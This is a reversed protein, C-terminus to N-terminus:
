SRKKRFGDITHKDLLEQTENYDTNMSDSVLRKQWGRRSALDLHIHSAYVGIGTFGARSAAVITDDINKTDVAIDIAYGSNHTNMRAGGKTSQDKKDKRITYGKTVVYSEGTQEVVRLLKYWVKPSVEKWGVGIPSDPSQLALVDPGWSISSGLGADSISAMTSLENESANPSRWYDSERQSPPTRGFFKDLSDQKERREKESIRIAGYKVASQTNQASMSKLAKSETSIANATKSLKLAPAMLVSQLNQAMTCLRFILNAVNEPTLREFSSALKAVLKEMDNIIKQVSADAMYDDINRILKAVQSFIATAASEMGRLSILIAGLAALAVNKVQGVVEEIVKKLIDMLTQLIGRQKVSEALKKANKELLNTIEGVKDVVDKGADIVKFAKSLKALVDNYVGCLEGSLKNGINNAFHFNMDGLLKQLAVSMLSPIIKKEGSLFQRIEELRGSAGQFDALLRDATSIGPGVGAVSPTSVSVVNGNADIVTSAGSGTNITPATGTGGVGTGSTGTGTGDSGTGTEGDSISGTGLRSRQTSDSANGAGGRIPSDIGTGRGRLADIVGLGKSTDFDDVSKNTTGSSSADTIAKLKDDDIGTGSTNTTSSNPLNSNFEVLEDKLEDMNTNNAVAFEALDTFTIGDQSDIKEQLSSYDDGDGALDTFTLINNLANTAAVLTSRDLNQTDDEVNALTSLDIIADLLAQSNEDLVADGGKGGLPTTNNCEISM